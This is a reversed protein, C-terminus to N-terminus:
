GLFKLNVTEKIESFYCNDLMTSIADYPIEQEKAYDFLHKYIPRLDQCIGKIEIDTEYTDTNCDSNSSIFKQTIIFKCDEM